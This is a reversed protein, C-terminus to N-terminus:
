TELSMRAAAYRQRLARHRRRVDIVRKLSRCLWIVSFWIVAATARVADDPRPCLMRRLDTSLWSLSLRVTDRGSWTPDTWLYYYKNRVMRHNRYASGRTNGGGYHEIGYDLLLAVRYGCWRMRRCLDLEEYYTEYHEDLFGTRRLAEIRVLMASSQVYPHEVTRPARGRPASAESPRTPSRHSFEHREGWALAQQSWDNLGRACLDDGEDYVYQLPGVAGYTPHSGMFAVLSSLLDPSTRTDPNLLFVYALGPMESLARELAANNAAAAGVNSGNEVVITRPFRRVIDRSGDSSGNDSYIVRFRPYTSQALSSLCAHLWNGDDTGVTIVAVEPSDAVTV